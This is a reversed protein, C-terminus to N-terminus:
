RRIGRADITPRSFGYYIGLFGFIETLTFVPISGPVLGFYTLGDILFLLQCMILVMYQSRIQKHKYLKLGYSAGLIFIVMFSVQLVTLYLHWDGTLKLIYGLAQSKVVRYPKLILLLAYFIFWPMSLVMIFTGKIKERYFPTMYWLLLISPVTIGISTIFYFNQMKILVEVSSARAFLLLTIYRMISLIFLMTCIIRIGIYPTKQVVKINMGLVGIAAICIILLTVM